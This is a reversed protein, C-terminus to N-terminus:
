SHLDNREGCIVAVLVVVDCGDFSPKKLRERRSMYDVDAMVNRRKVDAFGCKLEAATEVFKWSTGNV